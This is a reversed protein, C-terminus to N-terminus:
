VCIHAHLMLKYVQFELVSNASTNSIRCLNRLFGYRIFFFPLYSYIDIRYIMLAERIVSKNWGVLCFGASDVGSKGWNENNRHRNIYLQKRDEDKHTTFDSYGVAGLLVKRGSKTIIFYTHKGDNAQYPYYNTM